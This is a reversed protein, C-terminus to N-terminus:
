AIRFFHKKGIKLLAQPKVIMVEQPDKLKAGDYEVGGQQILRRAESKSAIVGSAMVLDM